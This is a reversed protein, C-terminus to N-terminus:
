FKVGARVSYTRPPVINSTGAQVLASRIAAAVPIIAANTPERVFGGVFWKDDPANFTHSASVNVCGKAIEAATFDANTFRKSAFALDADFTVNGGNSMEFPQTLGVKGSWKSSRILPQGSGNITALRQADLTTVPCAVRGLPVFIAAQTITFQM